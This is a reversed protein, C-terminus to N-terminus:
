TKKILNSLKKLIASLHPKISRSLNVLSNKTSAFLSSISSASAKEQTQWLMNQSVFLLMKMSNQTFFFTGPKLLVKDRLFAKVCYLGDSLICTLKDNKNLTINYVQILIDEGEQSGSCLHNVAQPTLQQYQTKLM